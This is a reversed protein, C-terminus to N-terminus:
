HFPEEFLRHAAELVVSTTKVLPREGARHKGSTSRLAIRQSTSVIMAELFLDERLHVNLKRCSDNQSRSRLEEVKACPKSKACSESEAGFSGSANHKEVDGVSWCCDLSSPSPLM